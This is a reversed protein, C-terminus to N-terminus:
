VKLEPHGSAALESRSRIELKRYVRTLHAEVTHISIVLAAAIEKNSKGAVALTAVRVEADTLM